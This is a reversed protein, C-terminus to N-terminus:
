DAARTFRDGLHGALFATSDDDPWLKAAYRLHTQSGNSQVILKRGRGSGELRASTIAGYPIVNAGKEGEFAAGTMDGGAADRAKAQRNQRVGQVIAGVAGQAGLISALTGARLFVVSDDLVLMTTPRGAWFIGGKPGVGRVQKHMAM